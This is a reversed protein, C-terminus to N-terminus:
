TSAPPYTITFASSSRRAAPSSRSNQERLPCDLPLKSGSPPSWNTWPPQSQNNSCAIKPSPQHISSRWAGNGRAAAVWNHYEDAVDRLVKRSVPYTKRYVWFFGQARAGDLFSQVCGNLLIRDFCGYRFKISDKHHEYFANM